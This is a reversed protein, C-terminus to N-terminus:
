DSERTNLSSIFSFRLTLPAWSQFAEINSLTLLGTAGGLGAHLGRWAAVSELPLNGVIGNRWGDGDATPEIDSVFAAWTTSSPRRLLGGPIPPTRSPPADLLDALLRSYASVIGLLIVVAEYEGPRGDSGLFTSTTGLDRTARIMRYLNVLRKAERPTEVLPALATLLAIEAETMPRVEIRPPKGRRVAQIESEAEVEIPVTPQESPDSRAGDGQAEDPTEALSPSSAEPKDPPGPSVAPGNAASSATGPGRDADGQQALSGLLTGFSTISMRPLAFPVNFIKELYDQPTAAWGNTPGGPTTTLLEAYQTELSRLLWRPDVGVVVVFLKFALLLHVAQLVEVVQRSSCRDLDDIYLVIRDIALSRKDEADRIPAQQWEDMLRVLHDFDRRITSILGLRSRYTNGGARDNVFSYLRKGPTLEALQRGIQELRGNVEVLQAQLVRQSTEAQTLKALKERDPPDAQIQSAVTRLKELGSNIWRIVVFVSGVFTAVAALGGGVYWRQLGLVVLSVVLVVAAVIGVRRSGFAALLQRMEDDGPETGRLEDALRQAQKAEDRVGLRKWAADLERKVEPTRVAARLLAVASDKRKKSAERIEAQLRATEKTGREVAATLEKHVSGEKFLAESLAERQATVENRPGALQDFIEDALSAWLNTDAYHWANFGIQRIHEYYVASGPTALREVQGRLLGMFYSKGSGWPGFLGISLPMETRRNAIITALMEVYPRVGLSDRGIPIPKTPDVVDTLVAGAGYVRARDTLRERLLADWGETSEDPWTRNLSARWEAHIEEMTVGLEGLVEDPVIVDAGTALVHRLDVEMAGTRKQADLADRVLRRAPTAELQDVSMVTQADDGASQLGAAVGAAALTAEASRGDRQKRAVLRVIDGTTPKEGAIVSSRLAGLLGATRVKPEDSPDRDLMRAAFTLARLAAPKFPPTVATPVPTAISAQWLAQAVADATADDIKAGRLDVWERGSLWDPLAVDSPAKPLLVPVVPLNPRGIQELMSHLDFRGWSVVNEGILELAALSARLHALLTSQSSPETGNDLFCTVKRRDLADVLAAADGADPPAYSVFADWTTEGPERAQSVSDPVTSV